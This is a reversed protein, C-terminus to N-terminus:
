GWYPDDANIPDLVVVGCGALDGAFRALQNGLQWLSRSLGVVGGSVAELADDTLPEPGSPSDPLYLYITNLAAERVHVTCTPPLKGGAHEEVAGRPDHLLREKFAADHDAREAIGDLGPINTRAGLLLHIDGSRTEIVEVSTGESLKLGAEEFAAAPDAKLRSRFQPDTNARETVTQMTPVTEEQKDVVRSERGCHSVTPSVGEVWATRAIPEAAIFDALHM